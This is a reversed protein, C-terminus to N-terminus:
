GALDLWRAALETRSAGVPVALVHNGAEDYMVVERDPPLRERFFVAVDVYEPWAGDVALARGAMSLRIEFSAHFARPRAAAGM